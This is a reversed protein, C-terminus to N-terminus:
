TNGGQKEQATPHGQANFTPVTEILNHAIDGRDNPEQTFREEHRKDDNPEFPCIRAQTDVLQQFKLPLIEEGDVQKVQHEHHKNDEGAPV